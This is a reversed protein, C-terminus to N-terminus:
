LNRFFYSCGLFVRNNTNLQIICIICIPKQSRSSNFSFSTIEMKSVVMRCPAISPFASLLSISQVFYKFGGRSSANLFDSSHPNIFAPTLLAFGAWCKVSHLPNKALTPCRNVKKQKKEKTLCLFSPFWATAEAFAPLRRKGPTALLAYVPLRHNNNKSDNQVFGWIPAFNFFRNMFLYETNHISGEVGIVL